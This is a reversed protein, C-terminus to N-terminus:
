ILFSHSTITEHSYNSNLIEEVLKRSDYLLLLLLLLLGVCYSVYEIDCTAM